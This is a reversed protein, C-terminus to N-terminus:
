CLSFEVGADDPIVVWPNRDLLQCKIPVTFYNKHINHLCGEHLNLVISCYTRYVSPRDRLCFENYRFYKM